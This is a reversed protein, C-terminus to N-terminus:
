FRYIFDALREYLKYAVIYDLFTYYIAKKTDSICVTVYFTTKDNNSAPLLNVFLVKDTSFTIESRDKSDQISIFRM